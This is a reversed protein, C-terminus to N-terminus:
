SLNVVNEKGLFFNITTFFFHWIFRNCGMKQLSLSCKTRNKMIKIGQVLKKEMVAHVLAKYVVSTQFHMMM